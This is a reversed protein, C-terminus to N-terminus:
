SVEGQVAITYIRSLKDHDKKLSNNERRERHERRHYKKAADEM